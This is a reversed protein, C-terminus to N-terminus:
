VIFILELITPELSNERHKKRTRGKRIHSKSVFLTYEFTRPDNYERLYSATILEVANYIVGEFLEKDFDWDYMQQLRIQAERLDLMIFEYLECDEFLDDIYESFLDDM